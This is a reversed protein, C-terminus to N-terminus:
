LPTPPFLCLIVPQTLFSSIHSYRGVRWIFNFNSSGKREKAWGRVVTSTTSYSFANKCGKLGAPSAFFGKIPSVSQSVSQPPSGRTRENRAESAPKQKPPLFNLHSFSSSVSPSLAQWNDYTSGGSDLVFCATVQSSPISTQITPGLYGRVGSIIDLFELYAHLLGMPYGLYREHM